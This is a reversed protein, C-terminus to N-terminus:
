GDVTPGAEPRSPGKMGGVAGGAGEVSGGSPDKHFTARGSRIAGMVRQIFDLRRLRTPPAGTVQARSGEWCRGKGRGRVRM